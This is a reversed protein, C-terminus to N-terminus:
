MVMSWKWNNALPMQACRIFGTIAIDEVRGESRSWEDEVEVGSLFAFFGPM